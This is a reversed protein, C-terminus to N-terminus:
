FFYLFQMTYINIIIIFKNEIINIKLEFLLKDM